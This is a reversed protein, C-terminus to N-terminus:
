FSCKLNLINSSHPEMAVAWHAWTTLRKTNESGGKQQGNETDIVSEGAKQKRTKMDKTTM